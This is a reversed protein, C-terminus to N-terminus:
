LLLVILTDLTIDRIVGARLKLAHHSMAMWRPTHPPTRLGSHTAAALPSPSGVLSASLGPQHTPEGQLCM